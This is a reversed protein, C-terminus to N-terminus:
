QLPNALQNEYSVLGNRQLIVFRRRAHYLKFLFTSVVYTIFLIVIHIIKVEM